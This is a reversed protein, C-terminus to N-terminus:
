RAEEPPRGGWAGGRHGDEVPLRAVVAFGGEPRTGATLRGGLMAARERMGVIGLGTPRSAPLPAGPGDDAVTISLESPGHAVELWARAGPAHKAVNTLAEQAIRYASLELAAGYGAPEGTCRYDLDLGGDRLRDVLAPLDALTPTAPEDAAAPDRIQRLLNRVEDLASRSATEITSLAARAEEPREDLLMRAVGSRVAIMSLSHSVVDHVERSLRLREEARARGTAEATRRRREAELHQRYTRRARVADGALWAPVIAILQVADQGQGRHLVHMALPLVAWTAVGALVSVALSVQRRERDAATFVAIALNPGANSVWPTFRV